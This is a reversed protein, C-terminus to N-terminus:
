KAVVFKKTLTGKETAIRALYTGAALTPLNYRLTENTLGFRDESKIVRGNIDAITITADTPTAFDTSLQITERVPNPFVSMTNDPLAQEDTTSVLSIYMRLVANIDGGFGYVNWDTNFIFTSPFYYYTDDNFAHYVKNNNGEYGIALLYRGGTELKVGLEATNLDAIDIQQLEYGQVSDPAEYTAIGLWETSSSLISSGDFDSFDEAVDNNIKFLYITAEVDAIPLESEDTTFAFEAKTAKYEEFNGSSMRYYNAVAWDGGAGPRYGQEPGNEKAFVHNSVIFQSSKENDLPRQDVSDSTVSYGVVYLGPQLEPAYRIPFVFGSDAVGPALSPITITQSHLTSGGDEKVYATVVINTQPNLGKNSLNIEFDFTDTAIQSAPTEFSSVPFFFASISLDSRPSPNQDYIEIDDLEWMYEWNGTWQWQIWVNPQNAATASIDIIPIAPNESWREATTLGPFVTYETWTTGDTSVRLVAGSEADVTYVGIHTQFTIFVESKGTCSFPATTLRAIHNTSLNGPEDSDVVAYGTFATSSNFPVQGNLADDFAPACGPDSNGLLPNACWTWLINQNSGDTTTWNAPIGDTFDQTWFPSPAQANLIGAALLAIGM